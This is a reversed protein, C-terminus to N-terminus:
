QIRKIIRGGGRDGSKGVRREESRGTKTGTAFHNTEIGLTREQVVFCDIRVRRLVIRTQGILFYVGQHLLVFYLGNGYAVAGGGAFGFGEDAVHTEIAFQLNKYDTLVAGRDVTGAFGGTFLKGIVIYGYAPGNGNTTTQHVRQGLKHFDIGFGYPHALVLVIHVLVLELLGEILLYFGAHVLHPNLQIGGTLM